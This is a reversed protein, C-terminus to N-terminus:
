ADEIKYAQFEETNGDRKLVKTLM